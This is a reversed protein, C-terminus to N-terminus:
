GKQHLPFQAPQATTNRAPTASPLTPRGALEHEFVAEITTLPPVAENRRQRDILEMCTQLMRRTDFGIRQVPLATAGLWPFNCHAVVDLETGVHIGATLLGEMAGELLND